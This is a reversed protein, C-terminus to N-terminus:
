NRPTDWSVDCLTVPLTKVNLHLGALFTCHTNRPLECSFETQTRCPVYLPTKCPIERPVEPSIISPIFVHMLEASVFQRPSNFWKTFEENFLAKKDAELHHCSAITEQEEIDIVNQLLSQVAAAYRAFLDDLASRMSLTKTLSGSNSSLLTIEKYAKMLHGKFVSVSRWLRKIEESLVGEKDLLTNCTLSLVLIYASFNVLM